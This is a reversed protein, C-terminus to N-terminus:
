QESVLLPRLTPSGDCDAIGVLAPLVCRGRRLEGANAEDGRARGDHARREDHARTVAVDRDGVGVVPPEVGEPRACV